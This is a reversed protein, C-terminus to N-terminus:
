VDPLLKEIFDKVLNMGRKNIQHGLRQLIHFQGQVGLARLEKFTAEGWQMYVLDDSDGHCQLLPPVIVIRNSPIGLQKENQILNKVEVEIESLSDIKEPVDPSIGARDFWVNSMTGGNPSYPQLPATPFMVKIHPFVFNKAMIQVWEKMNGGSDGSGHFFIVTATHKPGTPKTLHLAGLRSM